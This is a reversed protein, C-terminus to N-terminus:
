STFNTLSLSSTAEDFDAQLNFTNYLLSLTVRYRIQWYRCEKVYEAYLKMALEAGHAEAVINDKCATLAVAGWKLLQFGGPSVTLLVAGAGGIHETRHASGDFQVIAPHTLETANKEGRHRDYGLLSREFFVDAGDGSSAFSVCCLSGGFCVLLLCSCFDEAFPLRSTLSVTFSLAM